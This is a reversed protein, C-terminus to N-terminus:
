PSPAPMDDFPDGPSHAESRPRSHAHPQDDETERGYRQRLVDAVLFVGGVLVGAIYGLIGGFLLSFVIGAPLFSFFDFHPDLFVYGFTGLFWAVMGTYVSAPRPRSGGFLLAQGIAVLTFFAAVYCSVVPPYRLASLGSLLIAYAATVIMITYLDFRRPASYLKQSTTTPPNASQSRKALIQRVVDWPMEGTEGREYHRLRREVEVLEDLSPAAWHEEPLSAWLRVILRLREDPDLSEAAAFASDLDSRAGAQAAETTEPM